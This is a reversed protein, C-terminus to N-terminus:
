GHFRQVSTSRSSQPEWKKLSWEAARLSLGDVHSPSHGNMEVWEITDPDWRVTNALAESNMPGYQDLMKFCSTVLTQFLPKTPM